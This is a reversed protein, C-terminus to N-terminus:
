RFCVNETTRAPRVYSDLLSLHMAADGLSVRLILIELQFQGSQSGCRNHIRRLHGRQSDTLNLCASNRM